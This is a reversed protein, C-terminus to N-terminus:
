GNASRRQPPHAFQRIEDTTPHSALDARPEPSAGTGEEASGCGQIALLGAACLLWRLTFRNAVSM